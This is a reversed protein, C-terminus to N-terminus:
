KRGMMVHTAGPSSIQSKLEYGLSPLNLGDFLREGAGILAASLVFHMDDVLSAQLYQKLTSVGGGLRVDKDGAAEKARPLAAYVGDTVFYFTTGGEM